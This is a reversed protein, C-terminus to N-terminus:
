KMKPEFRERLYKCRLLLRKIKPATGCLVTKVSDAFAQPAFRDKLADAWYVFDGNSIYQPLTARITANGALYAGVASHFFVWVEAALVKPQGNKFCSLAFRYIEEQASKDPAFSDSIEDYLKSWMEVSNTSEAVITRSSPVAEIAIKRWQSM